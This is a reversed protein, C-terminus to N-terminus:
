KSVLAQGERPKPMRGRGQQLVHTLEHVLLDTNKASAPRAFYVDNGITFAKARLEKCLDKANGGIHVKVKSLKSGFHAELGKRLDSPLKKGKTGEPTSTLKRRKAKRGKTADIKATIEEPSIPM